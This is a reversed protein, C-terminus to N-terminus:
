CPVDAGELGARLRNMLDQEPPLSRDHRDDIYGFPDDDLQQLVTLVENLSTRYEDDRDPPYGLADLGRVIARGRPVVDAEYFAAEEADSDPQSESYAEALVDGHQDCLRQAEADWQDQSIVEPEEGDDGCATLGLAAAAALAAICSFTRPRGVPSSPVRVSGTGPPM